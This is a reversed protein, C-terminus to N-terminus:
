GKLNNRAEIVWEPEEGQFREYYDYGILPNDYNREGKINFVTDNVADYFRLTRVSKWAEDWCWVLAKDPIPAKFKNWDRQDKSPFLLCESEFYEEYYRGDAYFLTRSVFEEDISSQKQVMIQAVSTTDIGIFEVQGFLPSYLKTGIPVNKLIEVLNLNKNM